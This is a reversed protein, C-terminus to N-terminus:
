DDYEYWAQPTWLYLDESEFHEIAVFPKKIHINIDRYIRVGSGASVYVRITNNDLWKYHSTHDTGIFVTRAKLIRPDIIKIFYEKDYITERAFDTYALYKENPSWSLDDHESSTNLIKWSFVVPNTIAWISEGDNSVYFDIFLSPRFYFVISTTVVVVVLLVIFIWIMKKIRKKM